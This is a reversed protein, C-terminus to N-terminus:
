IVIELGTFSYNKGRREVVNGRSIMDSNFQTLHMAHKRYCHEINM